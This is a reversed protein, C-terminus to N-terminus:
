FTLDDFDISLDENKSNNNDNNINNDIKKIKNDNHKYNKNGLMKMTGKSNVIIETTYREYGNKDKWKRTQLSGEIYIQSGKDLYKSAIEALKGFLIIKHWQVKEKNEGTKKDKWIESTAISFNTIVNGNSTYKKEPKQGLNGILIVKNIGKNTM